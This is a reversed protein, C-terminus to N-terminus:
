QIPRQAKVSMKGEATLRSTQLGRINEEASNTENRLTWDIGQFAKLLVGDEAPRWTGSIVKGGITEWSYTNHTESETINPGHVQKHRSPNRRFQWCSLPWLM